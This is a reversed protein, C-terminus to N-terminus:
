LKGGDLKVLKYHSWLLRAAVARYPKWATAQNQLQKATPRTKLGFLRKASEQLAVDGYPFVDCRGLNALLYIQASWPGIGKIATLQNFIESDEATKLKTLQLKGNNIHELVARIAAIKPRSLGCASFAEDPANQMVQPDLDGFKEEVRAWISRAAALSILQFTIIRVLGKFGPQERRLPPLGIADVVKQFAPEAECVFAAAQELDQMTEITQIPKNSVRTLQEAKGREFIKICGLAKLVSRQKSYGINHRFWDQSKCRTRIPVKM